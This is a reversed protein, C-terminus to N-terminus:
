IACFVLVASKAVHHPVTSVFSVFAMMRPSKDTRVTVMELAVVAFGCFGM